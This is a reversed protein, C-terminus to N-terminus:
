CITVFWPRLSRFYGMLYNVGSRKSRQIIMPRCDDLRYLYGESGFATGGVLLVIEGGKILLFKMLEDVNMRVLKGM